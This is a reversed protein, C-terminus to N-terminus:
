CQVHDRDVPFVGFPLNEQQETFRETVFHLKNMVSEEVNSPNKDYHDVMMLTKHGVAKAVDERNIKLARLRSVVTVRTSHPTIENSLGAKERWKEFRKKFTIYKVRLDTKRTRKFYEVFLPDDPGAGEKIRNSAQAEIYPIAFSALGRNMEDETKSIAIFLYLVRRPTYRVDSLNLGLCESIRLGAGFLVALMARDRIMKKTDGSPTTIFKQVKSFDIMRTPRKQNKLDVKVRFASLLFPNRPIFDRLTLYNYVNRLENFRHSITSNAVNDKHRRSRSRYGKKSRYWNLFSEVDEITARKLAKAGAPTGYEAGLYKLWFKISLEYSRQTASTEKSGIFSGIAVWVNM